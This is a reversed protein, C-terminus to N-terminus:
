LTIVKKMRTVRFADKDLILLASKYKEEDLKKLNKLSMFYNKYDYQIPEGQSKVPVIFKVFIEILDPDFIFGSLIVSNNTLIDKAEDIDCFNWKM